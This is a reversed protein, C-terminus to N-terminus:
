REVEELNLIMAAFQSRCEELQDAIGLGLEKVRELEKNLAVGNVIHMRNDAQLKHNKNLQENLADASNAKCTVLTAQLAVEIGKLRKNEIELEAIRTKQTELHIDDKHMRCKHCFRSDGTLRHDCDSM